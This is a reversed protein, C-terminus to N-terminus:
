FLHVIAWRCYSNWDNRIAPRSEIIKDTQLLLALLEGLGSWARFLKRESAGPLASKELGHFSRIQFLLNRFLLSVRSLFHSLELLFPFFETMNRLPQCQDQVESDCSEYLLLSPFYKEAADVRIEAIENLITALTSCCNDVVPNDCCTLSDVSRAAGVDLSICPLKSQHLKSCQSVSYPTFYWNM